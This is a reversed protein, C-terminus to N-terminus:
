TVNVTDSLARIKGVGSSECSGVNEDFYSITGQFKSLQLSQQM